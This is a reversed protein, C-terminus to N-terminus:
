FQTDNDGDIFAMTKLEDNLDVLWVRGLSAHQVARLDSSRDFDPHTIYSAVDSISGDALSLRALKREDLPGHLVMVFREEPDTWIEVNMPSGFDTGRYIGVRAVDPRTMRDPDHYNVTWREIVTINSAPDPPGALYFEDFGHIPSVSAIDFPTAFQFNHSTNGDQRNTIRIGPGRRDDRVRVTVWQSRPDSGYIMRTYAGSRVGTVISSIDEAISSPRSVGRDAAPAASTWSLLLAAGVGLMCLTAIKM